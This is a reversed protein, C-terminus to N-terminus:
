SRALVVFEDEWVSPGIQVRLIAIHLHDGVAPDIDQRYVGGCRQAGGNDATVCISGDLSVATVRGDFIDTVGAGAPGAAPRTALEVAVLAIAAGLILGITWATFVPRATLWSWRSPHRGLVTQVARGEM